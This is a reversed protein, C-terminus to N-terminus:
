LSPGTPLASGPLRFDGVARDDERHWSLGGSMARPPPTEATVRMQSVCKSAIESNPASVTLKGALGRLAVPVVPSGPLVVPFRTTWSMSASCSLHLILVKDIPLPVTLSSQWRAIYSGPSSAEINVEAPSSLLTDAAEGAVKKAIVNQFPVTHPEVPFVVTPGTADIKGVNAFAIGRFQDFFRQIEAMSLNPFIRKYVHPDVNALHIAELAPLNEGRLVHGYNGITAFPRDGNKKYLARWDNVLQSDVPRLIDAARMIPNFSGYVVIQVIAMGFLVFSPMLRSSEDDASRYISYLLGAAVLMLFIYSYYQIGFFNDLLFKSPPFLISVIAYCITLFFLAAVRAGDINWSIMIISYVVVLLSFGLEMRPGPVMYLGTAEAIIRPVGFLMYVVFFAGVFSSVLTLRVTRRDWKITPLMSLFVLPIMTGVVGLTYINELMGGSADAPLTPFLVGLLALASSGGGTNVRSGPYSTHSVLQFFDWNLAFYCAVAAGAALIALSIDRRNLLDGRVSLVVPALAWAISIYFPPYMEGFLMHALAWALLGYKLPRRLPSTFIAFPLLSAGLIPFNSTWWVQYFQSFLVSVACIVAYRKKVGLNILLCTTSALFIANYYFGQFSLAKGGPAVWYLIYNPLFILSLNLHPIAIFWDLREFYPKLPSKVPFGELYAQKLMPLYTAWEDGRGEKPTGVISKTTTDGMTRLAAVYHSQYAGLSIWIFFLAIAALVILAIKQRRSGPM